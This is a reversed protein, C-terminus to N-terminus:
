VDLILTGGSKGSLKSPNTREPVTNAKVQQLCGDEVYATLLIGALM